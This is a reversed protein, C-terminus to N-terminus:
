KMLVMKRTQSFNEAELKYFYLGSPVNAANWTVTHSGAAVKGNVLTAVEHGLANYITLKVKSAASLSYEITTSPNFPNPYNQGLNYSAPVTPTEEDVSTYFDYPTTSTRNRKLFLFDPTTAPAADAGVGIFNGAVSDSMYFVNIKGSENWPSVYPYRDDMDLSNTLNTPEGWQRGNNASAVAWIDGRAVGSRPDRNTSDGSFATFVMTLIGDADRGLSANDITLHNVGENFGAGFHVSDWRAATTPVGGNVSPAWHLIRLDTLNFSIGGDNPVQDVVQVWVVHLEEGVYLASASLWLGPQAVTTSDSINNTITTPPGFTVGGDTSERLIINNEGFSAPDIPIDKANILVIAVKGGASRAITGRIEGEVGAFVRPNQPFAFAATTENVGNWSNGGTSGSSGWFVINANSPAAVRPWICQVPTRPANFGTFVALGPGADVWVGTGLVLGAPASHSAVVARGDSLVDFGPFGARLSEVWGLNTFTTGNDTSYAYYTGRTPGGPAAKNQSGMYIVHVSGDPLVQVRHEDGGNTQYDYFSNGAGGVVSVGPSQSIKTVGSLDAKRPTFQFDDKFPVIKKTYLKGKTDGALALSSFAGLLLLALFFVM